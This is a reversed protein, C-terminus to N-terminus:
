YPTHGEKLIKGLSFRRSIEVFGPESGFLRAPDRIYVPAGTIGQEVLVVALIYSSGTNFATLIENRTLSLDNADPVRGKVEIFVHSNSIPDFSEIDYGFKGSSVDKPERGLSRESAMVTNMAFMEVEISSDGLSAPAADSQKQQKSLWCKPIVLAAGRIKPPAPMIQRELELEAIRRKLRETLKKVNDRARLSDLPPKNEAKEKEELELTHRSWHWIEGELRERVAEEVKEINEFRRYRAQRVHSPILHSVVNELASMEIIDGSLWDEELLSEVLPKEEELIPRCDLYPADGGDVAIGHRDLYIFDLRRSIVRARGDYGTTGDMTGHELYILVRPESGSDNEDVLFAGRDLLDRYRELTWDVTADLLPHGPAILVAGQKGSAEAKDFCVREYRQLVPESRGDFRRRLAPPVRKVEYLGKERKRLVGGALAFADEFYSRIYHPQLRRASARDMDEKLITVLLPDLGENALNRAAVAKKIKAHDITGEIIRLIDGRREDRIANMLMDGLSHSEFLEGLVDYVKGGLSKRATELKELLRKYVQGERTESAVLNWLHCTQTQGIRHIRGFRQELRNPNWPLDYNVMLHAGRQLNVGEGAADNAILFRVKPDDNFAAIATRRKERPVGGHIVAVSEAEGTVGCIRQALYNLTDRAETFIVIKRQVEHEPDYVAPHKLIQNLERWKADEGSQRLARALWELERLSQIEALLEDKTRAATAEDIIQEEVEGFEDDPDDDIDTEEWDLGSNVRDELRKLRRKLSEHIAAPSSALRRQLIRLAFGVNNRRRNNVDGIGDARNMEERVYQTVANYLQMEQKSLNYSATYAKREPFLPKGDFSRLEEKTLRRMMDSIDARSSGNRFKGEFRDPDLLRMFLQFDEEKGNHPTATMLLFNRTRTGLLKGFQYRKTFKVEKGFYSASMRHAEDCVILDWEDARKIQEQLEQSRSLMDLRAIIKQRDAFFNNEPCVDERTLIDFRIRFKDWLEDQWQEVLNGPAVILCRELAGRVMLEKILLGAMITKGAGPDDALLFRLSNYQVLMDDYVASIQHPLPVIQSSSAASFTDFIYAFQIRLAESVLRLEHGDGDFSFRRSAEAMELTSESNRYLVTQEVAGNLKYTVEVAKSSFSRSAIVEVPQEGMIGKVRVGPRIQELKVM